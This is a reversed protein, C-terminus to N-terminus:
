IIKSVLKAELEAMMEHVEYCSPFHKIFLQYTKRARKMSITTALLELIHAKLTNFSTHPQGAIETILREFEGNAENSQVSKLFILYFEWLKAGKSSGLRLKATKFVEKLKKFNDAQIYFRLYQLWINESSGYIKTAKQFVQEIKEDMPNNLYLLEIFQLFHTESMHNSSNAGEFAQSLSFRKLVVQTAAASVDNNLELMANIYYNWMKATNIVKVAEKYIEVCKEIRKRHAYQTATLNDENELKIFKDTSLGKLERQALTNWMIEDHQFMERLDDLILHQISNAYSFKDVINLIETYFTVNKFKKKGNTYVVQAHQLALSEDAERRNELEIQFFLLYLKQSEPHLHQGRLLLGKM